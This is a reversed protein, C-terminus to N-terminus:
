TKPRNRDIEDRLKDIIRRFEDYQNDIPYTVVKFVIFTTITEGVLSVCENRLDRLKRSLEARNM